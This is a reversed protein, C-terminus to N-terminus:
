SLRDCRGSSSCSTAVEPTPTLRPAGVYENIALDAVDRDVLSNDELGCGLFELGAPIFDVLVANDTPGQTTNTATLTYVTTQSHVGRLLESEPSPESKALTLPIMLSTVTEPGASATEAIATAGGTGTSGNFVPLLTADGSVYAYGNIAFSSGVPFVTTVATEDTGIAPQTPKVTVSGGSTGTAPLDSVDEWVWRVLGAALPTAPPNAADHITPEGYTSSVFEVGIPVDLVFGLNFGPTAGGNTADFSYTANEGALIKSPGTISVSVTPAAASAPPATVIALTSALLAVIM